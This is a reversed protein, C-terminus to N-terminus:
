LKPDQLINQDYAQQFTVQSAAEKMLGAVLYYVEHWGDAVEPTFADGLVQALAWLLADNVIRYHEQHVGYIVHRQGLQKIAPIMASPKKLASVIFSLTAMLKAGQHSLSNRFLPRLSPDLEFMRQYFLVAVEDTRGQLLAFSQQVLNIQQIDM